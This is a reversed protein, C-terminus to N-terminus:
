DAEECDCAKLGQIYPGSCVCCLQDAARWEVTSPEGKTTLWYRVTAQFDPDLSSVYSGDRWEIFIRDDM